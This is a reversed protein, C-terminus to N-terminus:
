WCSSCSCHSQHGKTFPTHAPGQGEYAICTDCTLENNM